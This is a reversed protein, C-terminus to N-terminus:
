LRRSVLSEAGEIDIAADHDGARSELKNTDTAASLRFRSLLVFRGNKSAEEHRSYNQLCEFHPSPTM